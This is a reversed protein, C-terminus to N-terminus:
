PPSVRTVKTASIPSRQSTRKSHFARSFQTDLVAMFRAHQDATGVTVRIWDPLGYTDLAMVAVGLQKLTRALHASQGVQLCVFNGESPIVHLGRSALGSALVTRQISNVRVVEELHRPQELAAIAADQAPSSVSFPPRRSEVLQLWRPDGIAYGVRLGALGYAKSFTRLVIVNSFRRRLDVGTCRRPAAVYEAYAEDLIVPITPSIRTLFREITSPEIFVGTPNAPNVICVLKTADTMKDALADLDTQVGDGSEVYRIHASRAALRYAIFSFQPALIEGGHALAAVLHFILDTSGAGVCVEEPTVGFKEALKRRLALMTPDPYLTIDAAQAATQAAPAPGVSSENNALIVPKMTKM